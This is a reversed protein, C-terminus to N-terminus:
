LHPTEPMQMESAHKTSPSRLRQKLTGDNAAYLWLQKKKKKLFISVEWHTRNLQTHGSPFFVFM